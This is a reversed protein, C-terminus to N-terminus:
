DKFTPNPRKVEPQLEDMRRANKTETDRYHDAAQTMGTRSAKVVNEYHKLTSEVANAVGNHSYAFKTILGRDYWAVKNARDLYSRIEALDDGARNLLAAFASLDSPTVRFSL